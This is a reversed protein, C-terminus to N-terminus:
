RSAGAQQVGEDPQLGIGSGADCYLIRGAKVTMQVHLGKDMVVIDANKGVALIGRCHKMKLVRAANLSAMQAAQPLTAGAAQVMTRLAQDMTLTSGALTDSIGGALTGDVLYARGDSVRVPQGSFEYLGDPMGAARIADTILIIKDHTKIKLLLQLVAPHVHVADAIVEVFLEDRLLTGVLVGPKRHHMPRMANFIHTVGELGNDIAESVQEYSAESHGIELHIGHMAADRTVDLAGPIEPSITMAKIFSNARLYINRWADLSPKWMYDARIAGHMAPNMFPGELHIGELIRTPRDGKCAAVLRDLTEFFQTEPQPYVTALLSTTGRAAYFREIRALGDIDADAFDEGCGGHVHIDIFGPLIYRGALDVRLADAPPTVDDMPGFQVIKGDQIVMAAYPEQRYPTIAEFGYLYLPCAPM